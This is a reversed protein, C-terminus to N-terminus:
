SKSTELKNSDTVILDNSMEERDMGDISASRKRSEVCRGRM